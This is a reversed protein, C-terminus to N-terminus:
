ISEDTYTQLKVTSEELQLTSEDNQITKLTELNTISVSAGTDVEMSLHHSPLMSLNQNAQAWMFCAMNEM